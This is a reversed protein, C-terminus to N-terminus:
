RRDSMSELMQALPAALSEIGGVTARPVGGLIPDDAVAREVAPDACILGALGGKVMWHRLFRTNAVAIGIVPKRRAKLWGVEMACDIGFGDLLLLAADCREMEEICLEYIRRPLAAHPVDPTLEQPLVLTFRNAPLAERLRVNVAANAISASLYLRVPM